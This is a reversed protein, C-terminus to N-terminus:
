LGEQGSMRYLVGVAMFYNRDREEPRQQARWFVLRITVGKKNDSGMSNDRSYDM